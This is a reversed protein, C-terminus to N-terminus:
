RRNVKASFDKLGLKARLRQFAVRPLAKTFIDATMHQTPCYEVTFSGSSLHERIFFYRIDV